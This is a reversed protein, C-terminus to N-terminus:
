RIKDEIINLVRKLRNGGMNFDSFKTHYKPINENILKSRILYKPTKILNLNVLSFFPISNMNQPMTLIIKDKIAEYKKDYEIIVNTTKNEKTNIKKVGVVSDYKLFNCM